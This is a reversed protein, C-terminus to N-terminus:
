FGFGIGLGFNWRPRRYYPRAYGGPYRRWLHAAVLRIEPYTYRAQGILGTTTGTVIGVVSILRGRAYIMPDLYGRAAARFRGFPPEALRPRGNPALPYALITLTSGAAGVTDRVVLGGWRVRAGRAAAPNTLVTQTTVATDVRAAQPLPEGACGALAAGLVVLTLARECLNKAAARTTM